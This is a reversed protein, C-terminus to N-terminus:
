FEFLGSHSVFTVTANNLDVGSMGNNLASSGISGVHALVVQAFAAIGDIFTQSTNPEGDDKNLAILLADLVVQSTSASKGNVSLAGDTLQLKGTSSVGLTYNLKIYVRSHLANLIPLNVSDVFQSVDFSLLVEFTPSNGKSGLKVHEVTVDFTELCVLIDKLARSGLFQLLDASTSLVEDDPAQEVAKNLVVALQRDTLTVKVNDTFIANKYILSSYSIKGLQNASSAAFKVDTALSDDSRPANDVLRSNDKFLSKAIPLLQSVSCNELKMDAVTKGNLIVKDSMGLSKLPLCFILTIILALVVLIALFICLSTLFRRKKRIKPSDSM